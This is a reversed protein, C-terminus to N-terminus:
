HDACCWLRRSRDAFSRIEVRRRVEVGEIVNDHDDEPSGIIHFLSQGGHRSDTCTFPSSCGSYTHGSPRRRQIWGADPGMCRRIDAHLLGPMVLCWGRGHGLTRSHTM